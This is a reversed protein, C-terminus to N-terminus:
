ALIELERRVKNMGMRRALPIYLEFTEKAKRVQSARKTAGITRLNHIRDALKILVVRYDKTMHGMMKRFSAILADQKSDFGDYEFKTVGDVLDAVVEGFEITIDDKTYPTDEIVDHLVAACIGEADMHLDALIRAVELPHTIYPQGGKRFVGDHADAARLFARYVKSCDETTMYRGVITMLDGSRFTEM